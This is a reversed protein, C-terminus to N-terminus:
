EETENIETITERFEEKSVNDINCSCLIILLFYLILKKM